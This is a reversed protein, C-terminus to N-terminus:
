PAWPGTDILQYHNMYSEGISGGKAPDLLNKYFTTNNTFNGAAYQNYTALWNTMDTFMMTPTVGHNGITNLFADVIGGWEGGGGADPAPVNANRWSGGSFVWATNQQLVQSAFLNTIVNTAPGSRSYLKLITSALSYTDLSGTPGNTVTKIASNDISYLANTFDSATLVLHFFSPALNIRQIKVDAGQGTWASWSWSTGTPITDKTTNWLADFDASSMGNTLAAPFPSSLSSVIMFRPNTPQNTSGSSTQQYPLTTAVNTGIQLSPDVLFIRPNNRLNTQVSSLQWGLNTSVLSAWNNASPVYRQGTAVAQFGTAIAVLNTDENGQAAYDLQRLLVPLVAAALIAIVALVAIM